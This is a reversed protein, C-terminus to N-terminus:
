DYCKFQCLNSIDVEEPTLVTHPTSGHVQFLKNATLKNICSRREACYDWLVLPSDREKTDKRVSEKILSTFLEYKNSWPNGEELIRLTTGIDGCYKKVEIATQQVSVDCIIAEPAGIQKTFKELASLIDDKNM